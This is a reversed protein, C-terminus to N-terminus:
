LRSSPWSALLPATSKADIFGNSSRVSAEISENAASGRMLACSACILSANVM